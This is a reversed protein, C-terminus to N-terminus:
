QSNLPKEYVGSIGQMKHFGQSKMVINLVARREHRNVAPNVWNFCGLEIDKHNMKINGIM